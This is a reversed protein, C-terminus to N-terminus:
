EENEEALLKLTELSMSRMRLKNILFKFREKPLAKTFIDALMLIDKGEKRTFLRPDIAGKSFKQFLLFSLLMDCWERPAQKLGYLAKKLRYAHDPNDQDIFGEPQSVYVEECLERNLFTTKVNM